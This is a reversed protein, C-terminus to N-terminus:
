FNICKQILLKGALKNTIKKTSDMKLVTGFQSTLHAKIYEVRELVDIQYVKMFWRHRPITAAPPPETFQLPAFFGKGASAKFERCNSLYLQLNNLYCEGHQESVQKMVASSSNGLGRGRLLRVVKLDCAYKSTLICPFRSRTATDLQHLVGESWSIVTFFVGFCKCYFWLIDLQLNFVIYMYILVNNTSYNNLFRMYELKYREEPVKFLEPIGSGYQLSFRCGGCTKDKPPCWRKDFKWWLRQASLEIEHPIPPTADM